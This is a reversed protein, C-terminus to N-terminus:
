HRDRCLTCEFVWSQPPKTKQKNMTRKKAGDGIFVHLVLFEIIQYPSLMNSVGFTIFDMAQICISRTPTSEHNENVLIIRYRRRLKEM